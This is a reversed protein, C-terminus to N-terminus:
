LKGSLQPQMLRGLVARITTETKLLWSSASLVPLPTAHGELALTQGLFHMYSVQSGYDATPLHFSITDNPLTTHIAKMTEEM